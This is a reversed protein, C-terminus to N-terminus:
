SKIHAKEFEATFIVISRKYRYIKNQVFLVIPWHNKPPLLLM